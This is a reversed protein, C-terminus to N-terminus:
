RPYAETLRPSEYNTSLRTGSSFNTSQVQVRAQATSELATHGAMLCMWFFFAFDNRFFNSVTMAMLAAFVMSRAIKVMSCPVNASFDPQTFLPGCLHRLSALFLITGPLGLAYLPQIYGSDFAVLSGGAMRSSGLGSSGLGYGYPKSLVATVAWTTFHVRSNFSGDNGVDGLTSIRSIVKQGGPLLPVIVVALGIAILLPLLSKAKDRGRSLAMWTCIWIAGILWASRVATMLSSVALFLALPWKVGAGYRNQMILLSAAVVSTIAASGPAGYTGFFRTKTAEAIGISGMGCNRVWFEDWPPLYLWQIWGYFMTLCAMVALAGIWYAFQNASPRLWAVYLGFGLPAIWSLAEFIMGAGWSIGVVCGYAVAAIFLFSGRQVPKPLTKWHVLAVLGMLLGIVPIVLSTPPMSSYEQISWDLLRRLLRNFLMYALAITVLSSPNGQASIMAMMVMGCAILVDLSRAEVLFLSAISIALCAVITLAIISGPITRTQPNSM